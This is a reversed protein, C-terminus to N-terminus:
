SGYPHNPGLITTSLYVLLVTFGIVGILVCIILPVFCLFWFIRKCNSFINSDREEVEEM